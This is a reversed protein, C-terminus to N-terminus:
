GLGDRGERGLMQPGKELARLSLGIHLDSRLIVVEARGDRKVQGM